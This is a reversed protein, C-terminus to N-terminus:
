QASDRARRGAATGGHARSRTRGLQADDESFGSRLAIGVGVGGWRHAAAQEEFDLLDDVPPQTPLNPPSVSIPAPLAGQPLLDPRASRLLAVAAEVTTPAPLLQPPRPITDRFTAALLRSRHLSGDNYQVNFM